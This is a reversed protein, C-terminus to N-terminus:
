MIPGPGSNPPMIPPITHFVPPAGHVMLMVSLLIPPAIVLGILLKSLVYKGNKRTITSMNRVRRTSDHRQM